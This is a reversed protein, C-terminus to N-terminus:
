WWAGVTAKDTIVSQGIQTAEHRTDTLDAGSLDTDLVVARSINAYRLYAGVLKVKVFKAGDLDASSLGAHSLNTGTFFSGTLTAFSLEAETLNTGGLNARALDVSQLMAGSLDAGALDAGALNPSPTTEDGSLSKLDLGRLCANRLDVVARNDRTVDRRSLVTIAAVIDPAPPQAPCTGNTRTGSTTRAFAALIEIITPQDRPSDRALRELAYIGGLRVQLHDPGQQGLQDVAKTYRDTVQGQEALAVQDRTSDLSKSTFVLAVVATAASIVSTVATWNIKARSRREPVPRPRM